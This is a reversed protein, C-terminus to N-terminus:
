FFNKLNAKKTKDNLSLNIENIVGKIGSDLNIKPAWGLSRARSIDLNKKYTGDPKQSDWIIEGRFKTYFAIKESLDKISIEEGSGINLFFLKEGNNKKPANEFDPNWKELVYVCADGLDDVHLFERIPNGTGWCTVRSKNERNALIFKKLLAAMVHSSETHYNDGPGYLNTPMLSIADLGQQTRIYECLKLGAIKAIAYAENTKELYSSLLEEEQIPLKSFKPYICSSGLFLLRSAGTLWASEILNQQIKINESLFNYPYKNNVYIGGVKAAAVIVVKPKNSKFWSLVNEYSTLDLENRTATLLKGGNREDCYGNKKLAKVIANGVMGKHGAVFFSDNKNILRKM